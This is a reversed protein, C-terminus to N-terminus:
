PQSLILRIKETLDKLTFPKHIFNIGLDLIGKNAIIDSTYGSMFLCRIDPRIEQARTVLELGNMEPMVVDTLLLDIEVSSDELTKIADFPSTYALVRCGLVELQKSTVDLLQKEDEVLLVTNIDIKLSKLENLPAALNGGQHKPIHIVFTAGQGPRSDVSIFAQNQKVIGYVTALGLGTGENLNKTTYFPEFLHQLTEADMGSGNDSVALRVYDGPPLDPFEPSSGSVISTNRTSITIRGNKGVADRANVCLNTLVQGVQDPDVKVSWLNDALEHDLEVDEPILRSLLAFTAAITDNLDIVKPAVTQKRAFALLKRTLNASHEAAHQIDTFAKHYKQDEKLELLALETHGLIVSLMNNFDHAVGGALKGVADLRQAQALQQFLKDKEEEAMKRDSIDSIISEIHLPEGAADKVLFSSVNVWTKNGDRTFLQIEFGEISGTEHLQSLIVSRDDLNAYLELVTGPMQPSSDDTPDYGLLKAMAPNSNIIRGDLNAQLIGSVSREFIGRYNDESEKLGSLTEKLNETMTNFSRSLQGIEDDSIVELQEGDLNGRAIEGARLNLTQLPRTLRRMALAIAAGIAIAFIITITNLLRAMRTAPAFLEAEPLITAVSWGTIPVPQYFAVLKQTGSNFRYMGSRGSLMLEGLRTEAQSEIETLKSRMVLDTEPHYIFTGDRAIIIGYGTKGGRLEQAIQQIYKLSIGAGILGQPQNDDDLIPSVMFITPIGTTRSILPPTIQTPGGSMISIFYPRNAIDGVFIKYGNEDKLVTHYEGNRNAAYIDQFIDPHKSHLIEYRNINQQDFTAFDNNINKAAPTAAITEPELMITELWRNISEASKGVSLLMSSSLEEEIVSKVYRYAVFSLSLLGLIAIPMIWLLIKGRLSFHSLPM